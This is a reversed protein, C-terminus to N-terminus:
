FPCRPCIPWSAKSVFTSALPPWAKMASPRTTSPSSIRGPRCSPPPTVLWFPRCTRVLYGSWGARGTAADNAPLLPSPFPEFQAVLTTFRRGAVEIAGNVVKGRELLKAQTIQNAYAYQSMGVQWFREETAVLDLPYLMLVQVDRHQAGEVAAYAPQAAAGSANVLAQRRQSVEGPLEGTLRRYPTPCTTSSAPRHRWPSESYNRDLVRGRRSRQRQRHSLRGVQLLRPMRSAAQQVTNSWVFAPPTSTNPEATGGSIAPPAKLGPPTLMAEIRRGSAINSTTSPKLLSISSADQLLKYYRSRFLATARIDEPTYPGLCADPTGQSESRHRLGGPRLHLLDPYKAFDRTSRATSSPTDLPSARASMVSRSNVTTTIITTDGLGAPHAIEDLLPRQAASRMSTATSSNNSIPCPGQRQTTWRRRRTCRSWSYMISAQRRPLAPATSGSAFRRTPNSPAKMFRSM